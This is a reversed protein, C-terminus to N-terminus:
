NSILEKQAIDEVLASVTWPAELGLLRQYHRAVDLPAQFPPHKKSDM